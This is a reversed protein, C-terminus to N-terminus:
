IDSWWNRLSSQWRGHIIRLEKHMNLIVLGTGPLWHYDTVETRQKLECGQDMTGTGFWWKGDQDDNGTDSRWKGHRITMESWWTGHKILQERAWESLARAMGDTGWEHKMLKRTMDCNGNRIERKLASNRNRMILECAQYDTAPDSWRNGRRVM